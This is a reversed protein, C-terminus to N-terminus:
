ITAILAKCSNVEEKHMTGAKTQSEHIQRQGRYLFNNVPIQHESKWCRLRSM